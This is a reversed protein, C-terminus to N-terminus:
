EPPASKEKFRELITAILQWWSWVSLALLALVLEQHHNGADYEVRLWHWPWFLVSNLVTLVVIRSDLSKFLGAYPLLNAGSASTKKVRVGVMGPPFCTPMM